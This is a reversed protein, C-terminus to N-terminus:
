TEDHKMMNRALDPPKRLYPYVGWHDMIPNEMIFCGNPPVGMAMSVELPDTTRGDVGSMNGWLKGHQSSPTVGIVKSVELPPEM